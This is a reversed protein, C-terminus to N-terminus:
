WRGRVRPSCTNGPEVASQFSDERKLAAESLVYILKYGSTIQDIVRM